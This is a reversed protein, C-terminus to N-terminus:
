KKAEDVIRGMAMKMWARLWNADFYEVKVKGRAL